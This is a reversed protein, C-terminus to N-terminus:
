QVVEALKVRMSQSETGNWSFVGDGLEEKMVNLFQQKLRPNTAVGTHFTFWVNPEAIEQTEEDVALSGVIVPLDLYDNADRWEIEHTHKDFAAAVEEVPADGWGSRNGVLFFYIGLLALRPAVRQRLTAVVPYMKEYRKWPFAASPANGREDVSVSHDTAYRNLKNVLAYPIPANSNRAPKSM